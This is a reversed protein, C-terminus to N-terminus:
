TSKGRRSDSAAADVLGRICLLRALLPRDDLERLLREGERLM